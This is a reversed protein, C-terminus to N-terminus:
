SFFFCENMLYQVNSVGTNGCRIPVSFTILVLKNSKLSVSQLEGLEHAKLLVQYVKIGTEPIGDLLCGAPCHGTTTWHDRAPPVVLAFNVTNGVFM